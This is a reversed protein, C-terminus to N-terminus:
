SNQSPSPLHNPDDSQQRPTSTSSIRQSPHLSSSLASSHRRESKLQQDISYREPSLSMISAARTPPALSASQSQPHDSPHELISLLSNFSLHKRHKSAPPITNSATHRSYIPFHKTRSNRNAATQHSKLADQHPLYSLRRPNRPPRPPSPSSSIFLTSTEPVTLLHTTAFTIPRPLGTLSVDGSLKHATLIFGCNFVDSAHFCSLSYIKIIYLCAQLFSVTSLRTHDSTQSKHRPRNSYSNTATCLKKKQALLSSHLSLYRHISTMDLPAILSSTSVRSHCQSLLLLWTESKLFLLTISHVEHVWGCPLASHHQLVAEKSSPTRTHTHRRGKNKNKITSHALVYRDLLKCVPLIRGVSPISSILFILVKLILLRSGRHRGKKIRAHSHTIDIRLLPSRTLLSKEEELLFQHIQGPSDAKSKPIREWLLRRFADTIIPRLLFIILDMSWYQIQIICSPQAKMRKTLILEIYSSPGFFRSIIIKKTEKMTGFSGMRSRVLGQEYPPSTNKHSSFATQDVLVMTLAAELLKGCFSSNAFRRFLPKIYNGVDGASFCSYMPELELSREQGPKFNDIAVLLAVFLLSMVFLCPPKSISGIFIFIFVLALLVASYGFLSSASAASCSKEGGNIVSLDSLDSQNSLYTLSNWDLRTRKLKSHCRISYPETPQHSQKFKSRPSEAGVLTNKWLLYNNSKRASHSHFILFSIKTPTKSFLRSQLCLRSTMYYILVNEPPLCPSINHISLFSDPCTSMCTRITSGATGEKFLSMGKKTTKVTVPYVGAPLFLVQQKSLSHKVVSSMVKTDSSFRVRLSNFFQHFFVEILFDSFRKIYRSYFKQCHLFSKSFTELTM